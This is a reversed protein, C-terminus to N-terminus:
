GEKVAVIFLSKNKGPQWEHYIRFGAATIANTLEQRSFFAVKPLLGLWGGIAAFPRFWGMFDALCATSSVFVGGPKLLHWSRAIAEDRGELLHLISHAMVM